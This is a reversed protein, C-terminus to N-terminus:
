PLQKIPSGGLAQMLTVYANYQNQKTQVLSLRANRTTEQADLLNKLAIAGNKYRVQTLQETKEALELNRQQLTVQKDLATRNSLANETDAFAQYLTQRYQIISKAYDLDSIQIDKKMDNYQLFPLSLSAGLSLAPNQLLQTLSTSSSGLNGTLNISPYYSAKTADKNALSKRLRLEAARLDPRRSLLEAPLGAAINPLHIRPLVQPEQINLQQVPLQLLVALATRAEIRQQDIQSLSAKQSQVSQEAQTLDLGSVAGARYQIRILEYLKQTTTLSQQATSYRENLYGLQWYLNATTAILSQGTAQLDQETALAEWKSAETQRALKGFLDVEYSVGANLSVGKSSNDGSHLDVNHGTSVNSNIRIGQQNQALGARLRAQQLNIGAIALDTNKEIVQNVLQNLQVDDFLSWWQDAYIDVQVQKTNAKQYAFNNPIEISPAQYPTKVVAACGVLASSLILASALKSLHLQM